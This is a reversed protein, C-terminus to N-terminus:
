GALWEIPFSTFSLRRYGDREYLIGVDGNPLITMASYASRGSYIMRSVPWTRGDDRSLMVTLNRRGEGPGCFLMPKGPASRSAGPRDYRLLSAQCTHSPLRKDPIHPAFGAGGDESVSILRGPIGLGNRANIVVRGDELEIIQPELSGPPTTGGLKWTRGHDDSYIAATGSKGGPRSGYASFILRGKHAGHRLQIGRCPGATLSLLEKTLLGRLSRPPSWSAGDNAAQLVYPGKTILFVEGTEHDVLPSPDRAEYGSGRAILLQQESWTRGRDTSRKMVCHVEDGTRSTWDLGRAFDFRRAECFALLTGTPTTCLGPVRYLGYGDHGISWVDRHESGARCFSGQASFEHLRITGREPFFGFSVPWSDDASGHIFDALRVRFVERGNIRFSFDDGQRVAELDFPRGAALFDATRGAVIKKARGWPARQETRGYVISLPTELEFPSYVETEDDLVVRFTRNGEARTCPYHYHGGILFSAGTGGVTELTLRASIHFDRDELSADAFLPNGWHADPPVVLDGGERRMAKSGSGFVAVPRGQDVFVKKGPTTLNPGTAEVAAAARGPLVNAALGAGALGTLRLFDRRDTTNM